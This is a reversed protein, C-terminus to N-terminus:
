ITFPRNLDETSIYGARRSFLKTEAQIKPDTLIKHFCCSFCLNDKSLKCDVEKKCKKCINTM